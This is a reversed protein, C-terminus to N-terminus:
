EKIQRYLEEETYIRGSRGTNLNGPGFKRTPEGKILNIKEMVIEQRSDSYQTETEAEKQETEVGCSIKGDDSDSYGIKVQGREININICVPLDGLDEQKQTDEEDAPEAEPKEERIREGAKSRLLKDYEGELFYDREADRGDSDKKRRSSKVAASIIGVVILVLLVVAVTLVWIYNDGYFDEIARLFDKM